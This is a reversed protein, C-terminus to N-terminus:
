DTNERLIKRVFESKSFYGEDSIKDEIKQHLQPDIEVHLHRTDPM